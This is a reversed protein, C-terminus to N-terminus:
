VRRSECTERCDGEEVGFGLAESIDSVVRKFICDPQLWQILKRENELAAQREEITSEKRFAPKDRNKEWLESLYVIARGVHIAVEGLGACTWRDDWADGEELEALITSKYSAGDFNLRSPEIFGDRAVSTWMKKFALQDMEYYKGRYPTKVGSLTDNFILAVAIAMLTSAGYWTRAPHPCTRM